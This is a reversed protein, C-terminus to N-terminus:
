EAGVFNSHRLLWLDPQTSQPTPDRPETAWTASPKRKQLTEVGKEEMKLM